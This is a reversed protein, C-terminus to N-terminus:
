TINGTVSVIVQLLIHSQLDLGVLIVNEGSKLPFALFEGVLFM